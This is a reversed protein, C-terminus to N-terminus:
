AGGEEEKETTAAVRAFEFDFFGDGDLGGGNSVPLEGIKIVDGTEEGAHWARRIRGQKGNAL